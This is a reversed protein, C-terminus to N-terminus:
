NELYPKYKKYEEYMMDEKSEVISYESVKRLCEGDDHESWLQNCLDCIEEDEDEDEDDFDFDLDKKEEDAEFRALLKDEIEAETLDDLYEESTKMSAMEEREVNEFESGIERM